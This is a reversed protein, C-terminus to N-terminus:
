LLPFEAIDRRRTITLEVSSRMRTCILILLPCTLISLAVSLSAMVNLRAFSQQYDVTLQECHSRMARDVKDMYKLSQTKTDEILGHVDQARQWLSSTDVTIDHIYALTQRLDANSLSHARTLLRPKATRSFGHESASTEQSTLLSYTETHTDYCVPGNCRAGCQIPCLLDLTGAVSVECSPITTEDLQLPDCLGRSDCYPMKYNKSGDTIVSSTLWCVRNNQSTDVFSMYWRSLSLPEWTERHTVLTLKSASVSKSAVPTDTHFKVSLNPECGTMDSRVVGEACLILRREAAQIITVMTTLQTSLTYVGIKWTELMHPLRTSNNSFRSATDTQKAPLVKAIESLGGQIAARHYELVDIIRPSNYQQSGVAAHTRSEATHDPMRNVIHTDLIAALDNYSADLSEVARDYGLLATRLLADVQNWTGSLCLSNCGTHYEVLGECAIQACSPHAIRSKSLDAPGLDFNYTVYIPPDSRRIKWQAPTLVVRHEVEDTTTHADTTANPAIGDTGSCCVRVLACFCLLAIADNATM